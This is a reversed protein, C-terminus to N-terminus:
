TGSPSPRVREVLAAGAYVILFAGVINGVLYAIGPEPTGGARALLAVVPVALWQLPTLGAWRRTVSDSDSSTDAAPEPPECDHAAPLRCDVCHERDCDPCAYLNEVSADCSPCHASM